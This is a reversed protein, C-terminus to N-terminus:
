LFSKIKLPDTIKARIDKDMFLAFTIETTIEKAPVKIGSLLQREPERYTYPITWRDGGYRPVRVFDGVKYWENGFWKDGNARNRFAARGIAVVKAVQTNDSEIKVSEESLIIGGSTVRKPCRIQVIVFEGNPEHMVDVDPFAEEVSNYAFEVKNVPYDDYPM